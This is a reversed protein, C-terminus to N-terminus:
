KNSWRKYSERRCTKCVRSNPRTKLFATNEISFPHGNICFEKERNHNFVENKRQNNVFRTVPELHQPNVCKKNLCIAHDLELGIPISGILLQYAVRHALYTKHKYKIKGYRSGKSALWLWCYETKNVKSWFREQFQLDGFL